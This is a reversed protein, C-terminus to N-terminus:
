VKRVLAPSRADGTVRVSAGLRGMWESVRRVTEESTADGRVIEVEGGFEKTSPEMAVCLAARYTCSALDTISLATPSCFITRPPAMRDMMSVIELKSELEDPVFDVAVDAERVADEVSSALRVKGVAEGQLDMVEEEAQRLKSSLVDELVVACGARACRWAFARGQRGAGIVAVNQIPSVDRASEAGIENM